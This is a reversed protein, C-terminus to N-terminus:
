EFKLNTNKHKNKITFPLKRGIKVFFISIQAGQFQKFIFVKSKRAGARADGFNQIQVELSMGSRQNGSRNQGILFFDVSWGVPWYLMDTSHIM